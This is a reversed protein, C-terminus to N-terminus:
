NSGLLSRRPVLITDHADLAPVSPAISCGHAHMVKGGITSHAGLALSKRRCTVDLKQGSMDVKTGM